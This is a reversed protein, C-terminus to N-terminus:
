KTSEQQKGTDRTEDSASPQPRSASINALILPKMLDYATLGKGEASDSLILEWLLRGTAVEVMKATVSVTCRNTDPSYLVPTCSFANVSGFVLTTLNKALLASRVEDNLGYDYFKDQSAVTTTFSSDIVTYGNIILKQAVWNAAQQGMPGKVVSSFPMLAVTRAVPPEIQPYKQFSACGLLSICLLLACMVLRM